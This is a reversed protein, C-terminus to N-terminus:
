GKIGAHIGAADEQEDGVQFDTAGWGDDAFQRGAKVAGMGVNLDM